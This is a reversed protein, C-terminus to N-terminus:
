YNKNGAHYWVFFLDNGARCYTDMQTKGDGETFGAAKFGKITETTMEENLLRIRAKMVMEAPSFKESIEKFGTLWWHQQWGRHFFRQNSAFDEPSLYLDYMMYIMHDDDACDYFEDTTGPKQTYIGIEAGGFPGYQGKWMQMRWNYPTGATDPATFDAKVTLYHMNGFQAMTDYHGIFGASRQWSDIQTYFVEEEPDFDFGMASVMAATFALGGAAMQELSLAPKRNPKTPEQPPPTTTTPKQVPKTPLAVPVTENSTTKEVPKTTTTTAQETTTASAEPLAPETQPKEIVTNGKTIEEADQPTKKTCASFSTALLFTALAAATIRKFTQKM